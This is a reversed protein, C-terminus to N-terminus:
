VFSFFSFVILNFQLSNISFYIGKAEKTIGEFILLTGSHADQMLQNFPKVKQKEKLLFSISPYVFSLM